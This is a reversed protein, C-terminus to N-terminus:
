DCHIPVSVRHGRRRWRRPGCGFAFKFTHPEPAEDEFYAALERAAVRVIEPSAAEPLPTFLSKLNPELAALRALVKNYQAVCFRAADPERRVWAAYGAARAIRRLVNVLKVKEKEMDSKGEKKATRPVSHRECYGKAKIC